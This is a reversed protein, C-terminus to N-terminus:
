AAVQRPWIRYLVAGIVGFVALLGLATAGNIGYFMARDAWEMSNLFPYPLGSTVDGVPKTNFRQVFLEAWAVYAAIIAILPLAARWVRRFVKGIFLADIIQLAPGLAHLYYELWWVIPGGGNVLSPDTLYLRWYLFVVMVNLVAACTATVEHRRTIRHESLALMRSAAFFSLFLAWITLYRFPGGAGTWQGGIMQYLCYGAALLFVIWRYILIPRSHIDM